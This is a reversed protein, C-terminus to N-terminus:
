SLTSQGGAMLARRIKAICRHQNKLSLEHEWIRLVRWGQSRLVRNVMRDRKKNGELKKLWFPRNNRPVKSHKLCGHWFCGDVFIALRAARFLFDPKGFLSQRRRWGKIGNRRMLKALAVETEKNGMGRIRSMVESRKAPTFVDTM